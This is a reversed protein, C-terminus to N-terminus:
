NISPSFFASQVSNTWNSAAQIPGRRTTHVKTLVARALDYFFAFSVVPNRWMELKISDPFLLLSLFLFLDIVKFICLIYM